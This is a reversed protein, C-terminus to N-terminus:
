GGGPRDFSDAFEVAAFKFFDQIFRLDLREFAMRDDLFFVAGFPPKKRIRWGDDTVKRLDGLFRIRRVPLGYQQLIKRYSRRQDVVMPKGYGPVRHRRGVMRLIGGRRRLFERNRYLGHFNVFESREDRVDYERFRPCEPRNM